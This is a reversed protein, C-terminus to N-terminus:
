EQVWQYTRGKTAYMLATPSQVGLERALQKWRVPKGTRRIEAYVARAFRVTDETISPKRGARM